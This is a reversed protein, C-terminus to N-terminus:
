DLIQFSSQFLIQFRFGHGCVRMQNGQLQESKNRTKWVRTSSDSKWSERKDRNRIQAAFLPLRLIAPRGVSKQFSIWRPPSDKHRYGGQRFIRPDDVNRHCADGPEQLWGTKCRHFTLLLSFSQTILPLQLNGKAGYCARYRM